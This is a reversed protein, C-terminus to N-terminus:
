VCSSFKADSMIMHIHCRGLHCRIIRIITGRKKRARLDLNSINAHSLSQDRRIQTDAMIWTM